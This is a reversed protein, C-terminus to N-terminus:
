SITRLSVVLALLGVSIAAAGAVWLDTKYAGYLAVASGIGFAIAAVLRRHSPAVLITTLLILGAGLGAGVIVGADFAPKYWSATCFGSLILEPPCLWDLFSVYLIGVILVIWWAAYASPLLMLWRALKMVSILSSFKVCRLNVCIRQHLPAYSTWGIRLRNSQLSFIPM